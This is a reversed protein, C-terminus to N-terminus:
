RLVSAVSDIISTIFRDAVGRATRSNMTEFYKGYDSKPVLYNCYTNAYGINIVKHEPFAAKLRLGLAACVDGPLTIVILDGIVAYHSILTLEVTGMERKADLRRLLWANRPNEPDREAEQHLRLWDPDSRADFVAPYRVVGNAVLEGSLDVSSLKGQIQAALEDATRMLEPQGKGQRYFRTSVDGCTGNTCMVPCGWSAELRLRMQGMLDASIAHSKGDLITPHMSINLLKGIANGERDIFTLVTCSKDAPAEAENRNGYLGDVTMREMSCHVPVLNSWAGVTTEVADDELRETLESEPETAEFAHRFYAPASHTHIASVTINSAPIATRLSVRARVREAFSEDVFLSDLVILAFLTNNCECVFSSLRLRDLISDSPETRAYASMRVPKSPTTDCSSFAAQLNM